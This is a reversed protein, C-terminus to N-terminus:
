VTVGVRWWAITKAAPKMELEMLEIANPPESILKGVSTQSPTGGIRAFAVLVAAM